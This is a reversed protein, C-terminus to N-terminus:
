DMHQSIIWIADYVRTEIDENLIHFYYTENPAMILGASSEAAVLESSGFIGASGHITQPFINVGPTDITAGEAGDAAPLPKNVYRNLSNSQLPSGGSFVGGEYFDAKSKLSDTSITYQNLLLPFDGTTMAIYYSAATLISVDNIWIKWMQGKHNKVQTNHAFYIHQNDVLSGESM